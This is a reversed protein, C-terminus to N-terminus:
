MRSQLSITGARNSSVGPKAVGKGVTVPRGQARDPGGSTIMGHISRASKSAPSGRTFQQDTPDKTLVVPM